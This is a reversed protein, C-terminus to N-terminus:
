KRQIFKRTGAGLLGIGVLGLTLNPEPTRTPPIERSIKDALTITYVGLSSAPSLFVPPPDTIPLSTDFSIKELTVVDPNVVGNDIAITSLRAVGDIEANISAIEPLIFIDSPTPPSFTFLGDTAIDMALRTGDFDNNILGQFNLSPNTASTFGNVMSEIAFGLPSLGDQPPTPTSNTAPNFFRAALANADAQSNILTWAAIQRVATNRDVGGFQFAGIAVRGTAGVYKNYFNDRLIDHYSRMVTSFYTLGPASPNPQLTSGSSDILFALEVDVVTASRAQSVWGFLGFLTSSLLLLPLKKMKKNQHHTLPDFYTM